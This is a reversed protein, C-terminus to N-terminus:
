DIAKKNKLFVKRGETPDDNYCLSAISLYLAALIQRMVKNYHHTLAVAICHV